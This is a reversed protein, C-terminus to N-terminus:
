TNQKFLQNFINRRSLVDKSSLFELILISKRNIGKTESSMAILYSPCTCDGIQICGCMRVRNQVTTLHVVCWIYKECQSQIKKM